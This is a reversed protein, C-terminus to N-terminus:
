RAVVNFYPEIGLNEVFLLKEEIRQPQFSFKNDPICTM